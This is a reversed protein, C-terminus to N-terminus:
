GVIITKHQSRSTPLIVALAVHYSTLFNNMQRAHFTPPFLLASLNLLLSVHHAHMNSTMTGSSSRTEAAFLCCSGCFPKAQM